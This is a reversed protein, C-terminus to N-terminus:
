RDDLDDQNRVLLGWFERGKDRKAPGCVAGARVLLRRLEREDFGGGITEQIEQFSRATWRPRQLLERIATEAMYETRLEERKVNVQSKAQTRAVIISATGTALGVVLSVMASVVVANM